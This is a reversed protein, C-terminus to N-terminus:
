LKIWPHFSILEPPFQVGDLIAQMATAEDSTPAIMSRQMIEGFLPPVAAIDNKTAAAYLQAVVPMLSDAGEMHADNYTAVARDAWATLGAELLAPLIEALNPALPQLRATLHAITADRDAIQQQLEAIEGASITPMEPVPVTAAILRQEYDNLAAGMEFLSPNEATLMTVLVSLLDGSIAPTVVDDFRNITIM